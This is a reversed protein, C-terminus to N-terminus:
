NQPEQSRYAWPLTRREIVTLLTFLAVAFACLVVVAAFAEPMELNSITVNLLYGLGSNSGSQEAFVVGIVSFVAALKAGTFLGPLASPLEVRRFTQARTADFSRMLKLMAPDVTELSDLTTVVIPFFCVLAIVVLKPLLGFGLWLVLIPAVIVIPLAQSAILLPYVARRAFKSLHLLVSVASAALAAVLIGLVIERGSILLNHALASRYDWLAAAVAHPAPVVLSSVGGLDVYLEWIGLLVLLMAVPALLSQPTGPRGVRRIIASM